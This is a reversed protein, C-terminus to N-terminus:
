ECYRQRICAWHTKTTFTKLWLTFNGLTLQPKISNSSDQRRAHCANTSCFYNLLPCCHSDSLLMKRLQCMPMIKM